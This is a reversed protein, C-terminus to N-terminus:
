YTGILQQVLLKTKAEDGLFREIMELNGQLCASRFKSHYKRNQSHSMNDADALAYSDNMAYNTKYAFEGAVVSNM